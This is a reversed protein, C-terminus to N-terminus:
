WTAIAVRKWTNTAVCVYIYNSDWTITGATGTASASAPPNSAIEVGDFVPTDGTGLGLSTRATAGSEAVFNVGDGVIFNGDTVALGAVDTLQADLPQYVGSHNHSTSSKGDIQTQIDSTVGDLYGMETQSVGNRWTNEETETYYRTDLQGANLETETYYTTDHTHSDNAVTAVGTNSITVDGSMAVNNFETGDGVLIHTNTAALADDLLAIKDATVADAAIKATTVSTTGLKVTTVAGSALKAATISGDEIDVASLASSPYIVPRTSSRKTKSAIRSM